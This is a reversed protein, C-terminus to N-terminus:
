PKASPWTVPAFFVSLRFITKSQAGHIRQINSLIVAATRFVMLPAIM